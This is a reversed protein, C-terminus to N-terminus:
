QDFREIYDPHKPDTLDYPHDPATRYLPCSQEHSGDRRLRYCTCVM